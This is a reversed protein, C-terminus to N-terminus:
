NWRVNKIIWNARYERVDSLDQQKSFLWIFYFLFIYLQKIANFLDFSPPTSSLQSHLASSFTCNFRSHWLHPIIFKIEDQNFLHFSSCRRKPTSWQAFLFIAQRVWGKSLNFILTFVDTNSLSFSPFLVSLVKIFIRKGLSKIINGKLDSCSRLALHERDKNYFM